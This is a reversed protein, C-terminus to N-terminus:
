WSPSFIASVPRTLGPSARGARERVSVRTTFASCPNWVGSCVDSVIYVEMSFPAIPWAGRAHRVGGLGTECASRTNNGNKTSGAGGRLRQAGLEARQLPTAM